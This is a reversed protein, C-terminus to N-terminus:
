RSYPIRSYAHLLRSCLRSIILIADQASSVLWGQSGPLIFAICDDLRTM